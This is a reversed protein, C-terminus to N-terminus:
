MNLNVHKGEKDELADLYNSWIERNPTSMYKIQIDHPSSLKAIYCHTKMKIKTYTVKLKIWFIIKPNWLCVSCLSRDIYPPRWISYIHM